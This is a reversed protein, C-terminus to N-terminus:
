GNQLEEVYCWSQPPRTIPKKNSVTCILDKGSSFDYDWSKYKCKDCGSYCRTYFESLEKPKAYIKLDTIHWGYLMKGNSYEILENETLCSQKAMLKLSDNPRMIGKCIFEGIVKGNCDYEKVRNYIACEPCRILGFAGSITIFDDKKKEKTCYIYCKFPRELKPMTKRVEITEEGDAIKECRKPQISILVAKM